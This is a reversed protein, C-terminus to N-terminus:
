LALLILALHEGSGVFGNHLSGGKFEVGRERCGSKLGSMAIRFSFDSAIKWPARLDCKLM